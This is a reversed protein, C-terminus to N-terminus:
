PIAILILKLEKRRSDPYPSTKCFNIVLKKGGSIKIQLM